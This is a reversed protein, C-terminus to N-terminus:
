HIPDESTPCQQLRKVQEIIAAAQKGIVDTLAKEANIFAQEDLVGQMFPERINNLMWLKAVQAYLAMCASGHECFEERTIGHDYMGLLAQAAGAQIAQANAGARLLGIILDADLHADKGKAPIKKPAKM